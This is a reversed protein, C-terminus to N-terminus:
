NLYILLGKVNINGATATIDVDGLTANVSVGGTLATATIDAATLLYAAATVTTAAATQTLAGVATIDTFAASTLTLGGAVTKMGIASVPDKILGLPQKAGLAIMEIAGGAGMAIDGAAKINMHGPSIVNVSARPDYQLSVEESIVDSKQGTVVGVRTDSTETIQGANIRLEGGGNPGAQVLVSGKGVLSLVDAAELTINTAKITVHGHVETVSDGYCLKSEALPPNKGATSTGETKSESGEGEVPSAPNSTIEQIVPGTKVLQGGKTNVILRGGCAKGNGGSGTLIFFDGQKTLSLGEGSLKNRLDFDGGTELGQFNKGNIHIVLDDETIDNQPELNQGQDPTSPEVPTKGDYSRQTPAGTARLQDGLNQDFTQAM